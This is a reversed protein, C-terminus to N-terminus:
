QLLPQLSRASSRRTTFKVDSCPKCEILDIRTAIGYLVVARVEQRDVEWSNLVYRYNLLSKQDRESWPGGCLHGRLLREVVVLM